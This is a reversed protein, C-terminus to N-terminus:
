KNDYCSPQWRCCAHQCSGTEFQGLCQLTPLVRVRLLAHAHALCLVVTSLSWAYSVSLWVRPLYRLSIAWGSTFIIAFAGEPVSCSHCSPGCTAALGTGVLNCSNYSPVFTVMLGTGTPNSSPDHDPVATRPARNIAFKCIGVVAPHLLWVANSINMM